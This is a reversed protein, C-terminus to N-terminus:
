ADWMNMKILMVIIIIMITTNKANTNDGDDDNNNYQIEPVTRTGDLQFQLLQFPTLHFKYLM